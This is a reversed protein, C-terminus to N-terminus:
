ERRGGDEIEVARAVEPWRERAAARQAQAKGKEGLLEHAAAMRWRVKAELLELDEARHERPRGVQRSMDDIGKGRQFYDAIVALAQKFEGLGVKLGEPNKGEEYGKVAARGLQYHAFAYNTDVDISLARYQNYLSHKVEIMRQYVMLASRGDGMRQYLEGLLRLVRTNNPFLKLSEWYVAVAKDWEGVEDYLRALVQRPQFNLRELTAARELARVGEELGGEGMGRLLGYREWGRAWSRDYKTAAEYSQLAGIPDRLAVAADGEKIAEQARANRVPAWFCAFVAVLLAASVAARGWIGRTGPLGRVGEETQPAPRPPRRDRRRKRRGGAEEEAASLAAVPRGHALHALTGAVLWLTVGIGGVYWDYDLFSHVALAVVSCIGGIALMRGRFDEARRLARGGTFLVAGFLWLFAALGLVGQEAGIQLYNQHSAETYGAIAYNMYASRFAGPGIGLWPHEEAMLLTGKWTLVRFMNSASQPGLAGFVRSRAAPVSLVVAATAVALVAYLGLVRTLNRRPRSSARAALVLYVAVSVLVALMAGKSYTPLITVALAAACLWWLRRRWRASAVVAATLGLPLVMAFFGGLPNPNFFTSFIPWGPDKLVAYTFIKERVGYLAVVLAALLLGHRWWRVPDAPERETLVLGCWLAIAAVVMVDLAAGVEGTVHTMLSLVVSCAFLGAVPKRPAAPLLARNAVLWFLLVGIGLRALELQSAHRSVSFIASMASVGLLALAPLHIANPIVGPGRGMTGRAVLAALAALGIAGAAVAQGWSNDEASNVTGWLIPSYFVATLLAADCVVLSAACVQEWGRRPRVGEEEASRASPGVGGWV